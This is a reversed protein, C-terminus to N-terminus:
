ASQLYRLVALVRRHEQGTAELGLKSFISTVHREVARESVFITEAIARNSYGEAMLALVDRERDTLESLPEERRGVMQAVVEPDLVSGGRGIRQVAETFREIEGVRDKLLYGVGETGGALLESIYRDEVYQSLLLIGVDPLEQRISLAARLGDDSNDPPMRVDIVAVDPKHARVKRMLDDADGAQGVIEFGADELLRAAGERLLVADDAIVIRM